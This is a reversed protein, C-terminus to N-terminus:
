NRQTREYHMAKAARSVKLLAVKVSLPLGIFDVYELKKMEMKDTFKITGGCYVCVSFRMNCPLKNLEKQTMDEVPSAADCMHGCWPCNQKPHRFHIDAM